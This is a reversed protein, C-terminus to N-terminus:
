SHNTILTILNKEIEQWSSSLNISQIGLTHNTLNIIENLSTQRSTPYLLIGKASQHQESLGEQTKLYAYMQYLHSSHFVEGGWQNRTTQRTFKTDLIIVRKSGKEILVLDPRMSPLYKNETKEHWSITKQPFVDWGQLHFRYFNAVFLEFIHHMVLNQDKFMPLHHRGQNGEPMYRHLLLECIALMIRYDRDNRGLQQRRIFGISLEVIDVRDMIQSVMRLNQRISKANATNPGFDGLLVMRMLTTRIIQNKPVNISFEQFKCYTEGKNFTNRKLSDGFNIQGRIGRILHNEDLYNRGLGIRLRQQILRILISCLLADLSPAEEEAQYMYNQFQPPENWAYLLMYWINRIPIDSEKLDVLEEYEQLTDM